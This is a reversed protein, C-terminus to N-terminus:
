LSVVNDYERPKSFTLGNVPIRHKLPKIRKNKFSM